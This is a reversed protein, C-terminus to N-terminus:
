PAQSARDDCVGGREIQDYVLFDTENTCSDDQAFDLTERLSASV